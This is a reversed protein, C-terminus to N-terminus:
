QDEENSLDKLLRQAVSNDAWICADVLMHFSYFGNDMGEDMPEDMLWSNM